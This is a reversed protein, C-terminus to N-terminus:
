FTWDFGISPTFKARLGDNKLSVLVHANLLTQGFINWRVGPVLTVKKLGEDLGVITEASLGQFGLVPVPPIDFPAIGLAGAGRIQQYLLDLNVTLRSSAAIEAGVAVEVAGNTEAFDDEELLSRAFRIQDAWFEFGVNGHIAFRPAHQSLVASVKTRAFGLGRLNDEDGTPLRVGVVAALATAPTGTGGVTAGSRWLQVKGQLALDALGTSSQEWEASADQGIPFVQKVRGDVSTRTIPVVVGVDIRDTLGFTGFLSVNTTKMDLGITTEFPILDELGSSAFATFNELDAGAIEDFSYFQWSMGFSAKGRGTTLARQPFAPGFTEAGRVFGGTSPDFAVSFGGTVSGLPATAIELTAGFRLADGLAQSGSAEGVAVFTSRLDRGPIQVEQAGAASACGAMLTAVVAVRVTQSCARM